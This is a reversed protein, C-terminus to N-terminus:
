WGAATLADIDEMRGNSSFCEDFSTPCAFYDPYDKREYLHVKNGDIVTYPSEGALNCGWFSLRFNLIKRNHDFLGAPLALLSSCERFVEEIDRIDPCGAFLDEPLSEVGTLRFTHTFRQARPCSSFLDVPLAKLATCGWFMSTFETANGCGELLREPLVALNYCGSFAGSFSTILAGSAFLGPSLEALSACGEFISRCSTVSSFFGDEDAAVRQLSVMQYFAYDMERVGLSGWRDVSIIGNNVPIDYANMREAEGTIIVSFSAPESVDYTHTIWNEGLDEGDYRDSTGDGWNVVGDFSGRFPLAVTFDNAYSPRATLVMQSGWGVPEVTPSAQVVVIELATYEPNDAPYICVTGTRVEETGNEEVQLLIEGSLAARTQLVRIWPVDAGATFDYNGSWPIRLTGGEVGVRYGADPLSLERNRFHVVRMSSFTGDGMMVIIYGDRYTTPCTVYVTGGTDGTREVRTLYNGDSAASVVAKEPETGTITFAIPLTEGGQIPIEEEPIDLVLDMQRYRPLTLVSGDSLLITVSEEDSVDIGAIFSDGDEGTAKDLRTWEAGDDYSVWWYGDEIRFQPTVGDQGNGGSYLIVLGSKAFNLLYGVQEGNEMYPGCSLLYDNDQLAAVIVQLSTLNNNLQNVLNRSPLM